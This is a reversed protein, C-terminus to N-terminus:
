KIIGLDKLNKKEAMWVGIPQIFARLLLGIFALFSGIKLIKVCDMACQIIM